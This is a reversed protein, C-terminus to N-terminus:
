HTNKFVGNANSSDIESTRLGGERRKRMYAAMYARRKEVDRYRYTTNAMDADTNAMTNAVDPKTNAVDAQSVPKARAVCRHRTGVLPLYAGCDGCYDTDAM